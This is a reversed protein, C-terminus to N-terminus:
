YQAPNIPYTTFLKLASLAHSNCVNINAGKKLLLPFMDNNYDLSIMLPTKPSPGYNYTFELDAGKKILENLTIIKSNEKNFPRYKFCCLTKLEHQLAQRNNAQTTNLYLAITEHSCSFKHAFNHILKDSFEQNNILEYFKKNTLSLAYVTLTADKPKKALTNNTAFDFIINQIDSPCLSYAPFDTHTTNRVLKMTHSQQLCLILSLIFLKKIVHIRKIKQFKSYRM